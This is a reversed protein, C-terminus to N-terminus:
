ADRIAVAKVAHIPLETMWNDQADEEIFAGIHRLDSCTDKLLLEVTVIRDRNDECM